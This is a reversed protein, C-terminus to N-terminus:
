LEDLLEPDYKPTEMVILFSLLTQLPRSTLSFMTYELVMHSNKFVCIQQDWGLDQIYLKIFNWMDYQHATMTLFRQKFSVHVKVFNELLRWLALGAFVKYIENSWETPISLQDSLKLCKVERAELCWVTMIRRGYKQGDWRLRNSPSREHWDRLYTHDGFNSKRETMRGCVIRSPEDM